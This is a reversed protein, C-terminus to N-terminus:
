GSNGKPAAGEKKSRKPARRGIPKQRSYPTEVLQRMIKEALGMAEDRVPKRIDAM